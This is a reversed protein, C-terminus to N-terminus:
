DRSPASLSKVNREFSGVLRGQMDWVSGAPGKPGVLGKDAIYGSSNMRTKINPQNVHIKRHKNIVSFVFTATNHQKELPPATLVINNKHTLKKISERCTGRAYLTRVEIHYVREHSRQEGRNWPGSKGAGAGWKHFIVKLLVDHFQCKHQCINLFM